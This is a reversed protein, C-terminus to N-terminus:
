RLTTQRAVKGPECMAFDAPTPEPYGVAFKRQQAPAADIVRQSRNLGTRESNQRTQGVGTCQARFREPSPISCTKM